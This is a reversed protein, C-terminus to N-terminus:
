FVMLEISISPSVKVRALVVNTPLRSYPSDYDIPPEADQVHFIQNDQNGRESEDTQPRKSDLHNLLQQRTTGHDGPVETIYTAGGVAATVTAAGSFADYHSTGSYTGGKNSQTMIGAGAARLSSNAGLTGRSMNM